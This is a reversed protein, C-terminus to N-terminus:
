VFCRASRVEKLAASPMNSDWYRIALNFISRLREAPVVEKKFEPPCMLTKLRRMDSRATADRPRLRIAERLERLALSNQGENEHTHAKEIHSDFLSQHSRYVPQMLIKVNWFLCSHIYVMM